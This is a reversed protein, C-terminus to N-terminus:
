YKILRLKDIEGFLVFVVSNDHRWGLDVESGRPIIKGPPSEVPFDPFRVLLDRFKVAFRFQKFPAEHVIEYHADGADDGPHKGVGEDFEVYVRASTYAPINDPFNWANMQYSHQYTRHWSYPTANCVVIHGGQGM